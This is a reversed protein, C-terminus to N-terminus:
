IKKKAFLFVESLLICTVCILNVITKSSISNSYRINKLKSQAFLTGMINFFCFFVTFICM